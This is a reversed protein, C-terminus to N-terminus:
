RPAVESHTGPAQRRQRVIWYRYVAALLVVLGTSIYLPELAGSDSGALVGHAWALGLVVIALRHLVLWMGRPLLRTYRATLTTALFAYLALTGVAVPVNRYESLGPIFAGGLGVGAYPDLVIALVHAGVFAAIFIWLQDHWPFLAKSLKWTSKNTPHSLVLGLTVQFTLLLYAVIGASRAALWLRLQAQRDTGAPVIQDTAYVLVLGILAALVAIARITLRGGGASQGTRLVGGSAAAIPQVQM